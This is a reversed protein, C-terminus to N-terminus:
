YGGGALVETSVIITNIHGLAFWGKGLGVKLDATFQPIRPEMGYIAQPDLADFQMGAAVRFRGADPTLPHFSLGQSDRADGPAVPSPAVPSPEARASSVFSGAALLMPLSWKWPARSRPRVAGSRM